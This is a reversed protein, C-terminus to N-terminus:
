TLLERACAGGTLPCRGCRGIRQAAAEYWDLSHQALGDETPEAPFGDLMLAPFSRKIFDHPGGDSIVKKRLKSEEAQVSTQMRELITGLTTMRQNTM